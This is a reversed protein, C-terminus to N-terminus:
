LARIISEVADIINKPTSAGATLGIRAKGRMKELPLESETEVHVCPVGQAEAVKVLRRTNGSDRGGVVVMFDVEKAIAIVEEQRQQTADCITYLVPIERGLATFLFDRIREFGSEDQTTQAALFYSDKPDLHLAKIEELSNFVIAGHSAHSLLGRVEPHAEEGYLLLIRGTGAQRAILMQAKKVKPCTADAVSVGRAALREDMQRPVGHARILVISGQEIAEPDETRRVGLAAYHDLVQPNHIIPGFTFIPVSGTNDALLQDLKRLALDVGM